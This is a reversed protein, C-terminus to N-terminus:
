SSGLIRSYADEVEGALELLSVIVIQHTLNPMRDRNLGIWELPPTAEGMDRLQPTEIKPPELPVYEYKSQPVNVEATIKQQQEGEDGDGEPVGTVKIATLPLEKGWVLELQKSHKAFMGRIYSIRSYNWGVEVKGEFASKFIYDIRNSDPKQWTQMIAEVRPVKLITGGRSGTAREMVDEVSIESLTKPAEINRVGALGIRLQGLTLDLISHIRRSEMSAAFRAQANLAEMKFVQHDSFTGPFIGLNLAKLTVVVDTDLSIPSKALTDEEPIKPANIQQPSPATTQSKRKMFKEIEKLSTEFSARREQILKQLAQFLAVGLAASSTTGFINVAEGDFIAVLRDGAGDLGQRVNYMLFELTTIDAVLFAQYDFAAKIRFHSFGISAQIRPTENLAAERQPWQISTRLRFQQLAVFGSLRGTSDVGVKDFGLCLNQEWDSTKKSSVWFNNIAFVSKGIAQGLDLSVNLSEMSISATWPFAATAAVQQYRQVLHGQSTETELKSVPAVSAQRLEKPYWIERFLLFDQLQKANISTSMPSFKLIASVGSTGSVHKSNMFSLVISDVDFSGTSERSYVHQVSAQLKTFAGSIAFFNGQEISRVTNATFYIDDFCTTAAVRAIPQCSLSFEQRCIRLGLNVKLRGLVANPDATLINDDAGPKTKPSETPKPEEKPKREDSVVEKVSSTMEMVLPVVSPYLINSSADIKIEGYLTPDEKGNDRYEVKWALGPSRLVAGSGADDSKFQGYKGTTAPGVVRTIGRSGPSSKKGSIHVVAGAFDADVLLNEVRKTGLISPRKSLAEDSAAEKPEEDRPIPSTGAGWHETAQQVNRVSLNISEVLNAAPIIFGSTLRLDLAKGVAQFALRRMTATSVYAISFVVEPLLASHMSRMRPDQGLPVMQLQFDHISLRASGTQRTGLSILDISLVLDEKDHLAGKIEDGVFWSIQTDRVEFQYVLSSLFSDILDMEEGPEEDNLAIRPRNQRIKRLYELERSTDLDKIKEGMYGLVAVVTSITEPSLQIDLGDSRFNFSREEKGTETIRTSASILAGLAISGCSRMDNENGKQIDFLVQRLNVHLAPQALIPGSQAQKNAVELHVRDLAFSVYASQAGDSDLPTKGFVELGALTGHVTYVLKPSQTPPKDSPLDNTHVSPENQQGFIERVHEQISASQEQVEELASSIQPRNLATLLSYVASADLKIPEVSAFVTISHEATSTRSKVRGNTPPIRLLSITRPQDRVTIRMEHANEKIDFDFILEQGYNAAVAARAVVGSINYTLSQLLPLSINYEDMFLAVNVRVSSLRQAIGKDPTDPQRSVPLQGKLQYLQTLEDRVLIDAVELLGIPDQEVALALSHSSATAKLTHCALKESEQLDHSVIISPDRLQFMGLLESRHHLRSTVGNCNMVFDVSSNDSGRSKTLLSIKLSHALTMASLNITDVQVTGRNLATVVHYSVASTKKAPQTEVDPKSKPSHQRPPSNQLLRMIDAFLECLEWNLNIAAETCCINVTALEAEAPSVDASLKNASTTPKKEMRVTLDSFFIRNQKPGPDLVLEIERLRLAAMLPVSKTEATARASSGFVQNIFPSNEVDDLDWGRWRNFSEVARRRANPSMLAPQYLCEYATQERDTNSLTAWIHRLRVCLKWSDYTRLHNDATRLVASPRVLFMPDSASQGDVLLKSVFRKVRSDYREFTDELLGTLDAAVISTRHVLSAIYEINGSATSSSIAKIEGDVYTIDRSGLSIIVRDIHAQLAAQGGTAGFSRESASFDVSGLRVMLAMSKKEPPTESADVDAVQAETRTKESTSRTSLVLRSLSVDYQDQEDQGLGTTAPTSNLFRLSAKPIRLSLEKIHGDVSDSKQQDFIDTMSSIQLSDLIDEPETPQFATILSSIYRVATPNLCASVGVPLEVIVGSYLHNESLSEPDIDELGFNLLDEDRDDIAGVSPARSSSIRPQANELPFYPPFFQSAFSMSSHQDQGPQDGLLRHASSLRGTSASVDRTRRGRSGPPSLARSNRASNVNTERAVSLRGTELRTGDRRTGNSITSTSSLFSSKRKLDRQPDFHVFSRTSSFEESAEMLDAPHPVPPVDQAPPDVPEPIFDDLHVDPLLLFETRHTRQDERRILEQQLKREHTFHFKRGIITLHITTKFFADAELDHHAKFRQRSVTESNMCSIQLDPVQIDARKSYHSRAWDNFKIDIAATSLLFAAEDVHLWLKVSEVAVRLFTVDFMVIASYPILANEDDDFEFGFAKGARVLTALCDATCEGTLAGVEIDWNCMYTPETPPLGFLRHGYVKLGDIFLQTSTTASIPTELGADASGLSISLPSVSLDLDMYYNTFRLDAALIATEIQINRNPSYLNAPLLLRPDDVRISLIVDLDNSKKSPPKSAQEAVPDREKLQLSERYEDLTKFHVDDGFYNDKLKLVYRIIFGYITATPSQGSVNLILSDTNAPSTTANYNYSGDVVLNEGVGLDTSSLFSAQTNWPPVHLGFGFTEAKANFSVANKPPRFRDIPICVSSNLSPSSVILYTNDDLDTPKNIINSDNVNLYLKFDELKLSLYYRFPTFVLYEAPPGSSWDDILDILLFIHDRLLFLEMQNTTINFHWSRPANWKLPTSLDCSVRLPGSRWLLEHNVSSSLETGPVDLDLLMAFGHPGALMDMSYSVTTNAAVKVDLWGAPRLPAAAEGKSRKTARARQKRTLHTHSGPKTSPERGKWRWNKSDERCPVRLTLEDLLEVYLKFQTPVRDAGQLLPKAPVADKSLGPFFVRQIDARQRDAWPGYNASGGKISLNIGWGPAESGNVNEKHARSAAEATVKSPVDWYVVLTAEPSDVVSTAAAYEVNAWLMKVDQENDDLYRALGQWHSNAHIQPAEAVNGNSTDVFFSEVSKRWGPVMNRLGGLTRRKQRRFFGMKHQPRVETSEERSARNVQDERYDENDKMELVPHQFKIDFVQRYPDSTTTSSANIEGALSDAKIVLIGKTNENGMVMAAKQCTVIIPFAQLMFPLDSSSESASPSSPGTDSALSTRGTSARRRLGDAFKKLRPFSTEEGNANGNSDSTTPSVEPKKSLKNGRNRVQADEAATSTPTVPVGQPDQETLGALISDYVASRNYVFWELGALNVTIRCPLDSNAPTKTNQEGQNARLKAAAKIEVDRVRWLWYRWTIYGHQVHFTENKGYYRLGTFFVRGGLLSVQLAQIDVHVRYQHWAWARVGLSVLAGFVRNFYLLFFIALFGCIILYGLFVGDFGPVDAPTRDFGDPRDSM